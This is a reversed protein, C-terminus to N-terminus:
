SSQPMRTKSLFNTTEAKNPNQETHLARWTPRPAELIHKRFLVCDQADCIAAMANVRAFILKSRLRQPAVMAYAVIAVQTPASTRLGRGGGGWGMHWDCTYHLRRFCVREALVM